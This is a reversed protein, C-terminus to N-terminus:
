RSVMSLLTDFMDKGTQIIKSSAAYLQQFKVMNAAEEDLNVGSVEERRSNLIEMVSKDAARNNTWTAIQSGTTAVLDSVPDSFIGRLAEIAYADDADIIWDDVNEPAVARFNAARLQSLNDVYSPDSPDLMDRVEYIQTASSINPIDALYTDDATNTKLAGDSVEFGFMPNPSLDNVTKLLGIAISDLRRNLDPLFNRVLEVYAGAEGSQFLETAVTQMTQNKIRNNEDSANISAQTYSTFTIKLNDINGETNVVNFKNAIGGEVLPIGNMYHTATQDTNIVTQGGVLKQLRMLL